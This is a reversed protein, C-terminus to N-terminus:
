QIQNNNETLQINKDLFGVFNEGGILWLIKKVALYEQKVINLSILENLIIEFSVGKQIKEIINLAIHLEEGFFASTARMPVIKDWNNWYHQYIIKHGREIWECIYKSINKKHEEYKKTYEAIFKQREVNYQHKTMGTVTKYIYDANVEEDTSLFIFKNNFVGFFPKSNFPNNKFNEFEEIFQDLFQVGATNLQVYGLKFLRNIQDELLM